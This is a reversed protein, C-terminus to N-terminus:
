ASAAAIPLLIPIGAEAGNIRGQETDARLPNFCRVCSARFETLKDAGGSNITEGQRGVGSFILQLAVVVTIFGSVILLLYDTGGGGIFSWVSAV